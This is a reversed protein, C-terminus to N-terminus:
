FDAWWGILSGFHFLYDLSKTRETSLGRAMHHKLDDWSTERARQVLATSAALLVEVVSKNSSAWNFKGVSTVAGHAARADM